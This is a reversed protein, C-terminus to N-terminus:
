IYWQFIQYRERWISILVDFSLYHHIRINMFDTSGLISLFLSTMQLIVEVWTPIVESSSYCSLSPAVINGRIYYCSWQICYRIVNRKIVPTAHIAYLIYNCGPIKVTLICTLYILHTGNIWNNSCHVKSRWQPTPLKLCLQSWNERSQIIDCYHPSEHGQESKM